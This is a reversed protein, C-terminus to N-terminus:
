TRLRPGLLRRCICRTCTERWSVGLGLPTLVTAMPEDRGPPRGGQAGRFLGPPAEGRVCATSGLPWAAIKPKAGPIFVRLVYRQAKADFGDVHGWHGNFQRAACATDSPM